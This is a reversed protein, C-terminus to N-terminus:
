QKQINDMIATIVGNYLNNFSAKAEFYRKVTHNELMKGEANKLTDIHEPTLQRGTLQMREYSQQLMQFNQMAEGANVDAKLRKEARKMERYEDSAGLMKGLKAALELM